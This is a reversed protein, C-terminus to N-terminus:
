TGERAEGRGQIGVPGPGNEVHALDLVEIEQGGSFLVGRVHAPSGEPPPEMAGHLMQCEGSIPIATKEEGAFNRRTVLWYRRVVEFSGDLNRGVAWVPLIEGRRVMVGELALTTHPFTQVEGQSFLEIVESTPLAFRRQGLSFVVYTTRVSHTGNM